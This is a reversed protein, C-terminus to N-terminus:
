VLDQLEALVDLDDLGRPFSLCDTGFSKRTFAKANNHYLETKVETAQAAFPALSQICPVCYMVM